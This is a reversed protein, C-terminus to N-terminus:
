VLEGAVVGNPFVFIDSRAGQERAERFPRYRPDAMFADVAAMSPFSLVAMRDPVAGEGEIRRIARGGALSVAGHEALLKPVEAFYHEIWGMDRFTMSVLMIVPAGEGAM